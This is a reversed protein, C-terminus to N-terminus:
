LFKYERCGPRTQHGPSGHDAARRPGAIPRSEARGARRHAMGLEEYSRLRTTKNRNRTTCDARTLIHLRELEDGADRVYRRVASDSWSADSYGHFRLHLEVLKAVSKVTATPYKLAKLRKTM